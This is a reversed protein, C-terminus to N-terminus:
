PRSVKRRAALAQRQRAARDQVPTRTDPGQPSLHAVQGRITPHAFLETIPLRRQLATCLFAHLSALRLSDGGADFFNEDPSLDTRGLVRSWLSRVLAPLDTPDAPPPPTSEPSAADPRLSQLRLRDVKGNPTLPFANRSIFDAPIMPDPLRAALHHRLDAPAPPRAHPIFYAVLRADAGAPEAVVVAERVGPHGTLATEIEPLEVRFGRIKIQFDQRGLFELAGNRGVQVRDGTRYIKAGNLHDPFPNELFREATQTPADPYGPGVGLGGIVLEGAEGDPVPALTEDLLALQVNSVTKGLPMTAYDPTEGPPLRHFACIDTCETPGYTNAIEAGCFPNERWSQLRSMVVPEGGLVVLRLSSLRRWGAEDATEILPYFASPTCNLITIRHTVILDALVELDYPGSPYCIATAGARLPVFLNKQTLDFSPSSLLLFRDDATVAFERAFWEILNAFGERRVVAGKPPGTSGSTFITYLPDDPRAGHPHPSQSARVADEPDVPLVRTEPPVPFREEWDPRTLLVKPRSRELMTALRSAPYEPDLPVYAAGAKVAALVAAVWAVSRPFALAVRDGPGVGSVQLRAALDDTWRALEEYRLSHREDAVAVKDPLPLPPLLQELAPDAVVHEAGRRFCPASSFQTSPPDPCM